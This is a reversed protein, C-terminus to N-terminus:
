QCTSTIGDEYLWKPDPVPSAGVNGNDDMYFHLMVVRAASVSHLLLIMYSRMGALDGTVKPNGVSDLCCVFEGHEVRAVYEGKNFRAQLEAFTM